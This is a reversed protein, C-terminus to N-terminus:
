ASAIIGEMQESAEQALFPLNVAINVSFADTGHADGSPPREGGGEPEFNKYTM